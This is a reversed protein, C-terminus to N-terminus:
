GLISSLRSVSVARSQYNAQHFMHPPNCAVGCLHQHLTATGNKGKRRLLLLLLGHSASAACIMACSTQTEGAGDWAACLLLPCQCLHFQQQGLLASQSFIETSSFFYLQGSQEAQIWTSTFALCPLMLTSQPLLHDCLHISFERSNGM